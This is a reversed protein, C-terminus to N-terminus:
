IGAGEAKHLLRRVTYDLGHERWCRYMRVLPAPRQAPPPTTGWRLRWYTEWYARSRLFAVGVDSEEYHRLFESLLRDLAEAQAPNERLRFYWTFLGNLENQLVLQRWAAPVSATLDRVIRYSDLQADFHAAKRGILSGSQAVRYCAVPIEVAMLRQACLLCHIFFSHDNVCILTNFRINHEELFTRRYLGNWPVDSLNLLREPRKAYSLVRHRDVWNLSTNWTEPAISRRGTQADLYYFRGKIMDLRHKQALRWLHELAGPLYYDDADLFAIYTGKAQKMGNNRAVGAYQNSQTLICIRRDKAAYEALIAPSQDTSGDDVCIVELDTLSQSLISDLCERLHLESNYVPIIVSLKIESM